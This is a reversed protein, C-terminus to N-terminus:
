CALQIDTTAAYEVVPPPTEDISKPSHVILAEGLESPDQTPPTARTKYVYIAVGVGLAIVVVVGLVIVFILAIPTSGGSSNGPANAPVPTWDPPMGPHPTAPSLTKGPPVPTPKPTPVPTPQPTPIPTPQPTPVLTPVFANYGAATVDLSTVDFSCHQNKNQFVVGFRQFVYTRIGQYLGINVIVLSYYKQQTSSIPISFCRTDFDSCLSLTFSPNANCGSGHPQLVYKIASFYFVETTDVQVDFRMYGNLPVNGTAVSYDTTGTPPKNEPPSTDTTLQLTTVDFSCHKNNNTFYVIIEKFVYDFYAPVQATQTVYYRQQFMYTVDWCRSTGDICLGVKFNPIADCGDM